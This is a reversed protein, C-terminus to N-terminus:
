AGDPGEKKGTQRLEDQLERHAAVMRDRVLSAVEVPTSGSYESYPVAELIRLRIRTRGPLVLGKRPVAGASGELVMPLIPVANDLAMRFAGERFPGMVGDPHRTGEPFILVPSGEALLERVRTFLAQRSAPDGRIIEPYRNLRMLWGIIPIRFNEAKSLFKFHTFLGYLLLIDLMSQHNSVMICARNRIIHERGTIRVHWLPNIWVYLSGWFSSFLHLARLRRDMGVTVIWLIFALAFMVICSLFFFIWLLVSFVALNIRKLDM